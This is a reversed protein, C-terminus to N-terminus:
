HKSFYIQSLIRQLQMLINANISIDLDSKNNDNAIDTSFGTGIPTTFKFYYMSEINFARYHEVSFNLSIYEMYIDKLMRMSIEPGNVQISYLVDKLLQLFFGDHKKVNTDSIGKVDIREEKSMNNYYYYLEVNNLKYFATYVNKMAFNILGFSTHKIQRNIIFVADNKISLVDMDRIDNAEFFQKKAEVIGDKLAASVNKDKSLNGIYKQRVMRPSNYLSDYIDKNIIGKLFLININCKSIDYEYILVNSLYSIDATYNVKQWLDM